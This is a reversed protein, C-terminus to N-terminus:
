RLKSRHRRIREKGRSPECDMCYERKRGRKYELASPLVRGCGGKCMPPVLGRGIDELIEAWLYDLWSYYRRVHVFKSKQEQTGYTRRVESIYDAYNPVLLLAEIFDQEVLADERLPSLRQIDEFRLNGNRAEALVQRMKQQEACFIRQPDDTPSFKFRLTLGYNTMFNVIEQISSGDTNLFAPYLRSPLSTEHGPLPPIRHGNPTIYVLEVMTPPVDRIAMTPVFIPFTFLSRSFQKESKSDTSALAGSKEPPWSFNVRKATRPTIERETESLLEPKRESDLSWLTKILTDDATFERRGLPTM